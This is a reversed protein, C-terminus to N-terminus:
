MSEGMNMNKPRALKLRAPLAPFSTNEKDRSCIKLSVDSEDQAPQADL